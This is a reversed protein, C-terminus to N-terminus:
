RSRKKQTTAKKTTKKPSVVRKTITLHSVDTYGMTIIESNMPKQSLSSALSSSTFLWEADKQFKHIESLRPRVDPEFYTQLPRDDPIMEEILTLSLKGLETDPFFAGFEGLIFLIDYASCYWNPVFAKQNNNRDYAEYGTLLTHQNGILPEKYKVSLGFDGIKVIYKSAPAYLTTDGLTYEFYHADSVKAGNFIMNDTVYQIFINDSHLDNHSVQYMTQYTAIAHILQVVISYADSISLKFKLLKRLTTDIKEMFIYFDADQEEDSDCTYFNYQKFFNISHTDYLNGLILGIIYESYIEKECVYSGSPISITGKGDIRKINVNRTTLCLKYFMPVYINKVISNEDKIDKNFMLLIDIPIHPVETEQFKKLTKNGKVFWSEVAAKVKKMAYDKGDIKVGYAVGYMGQGLVTAARETIKLASCANNHKVLHQVISQGTNYIRLTNGTDNKIESITLTSDKSGDGFWNLPNLAGFWSSVTEYGEADVQGQVIDMDDGSNAKNYANTMNIFIDGVENADIVDVAAM